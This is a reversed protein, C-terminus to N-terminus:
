REILGFLRTTRVVGGGSTVVANGHYSWGSQARWNEDKSANPTLGPVFIPLMISSISKRKDATDIAM